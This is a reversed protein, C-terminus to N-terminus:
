YVIIIPLSLESYFTKNTNFLIIQMCKKGYFTKSSKIKSYIQWYLKSTELNIKLGTIEIILNIFLYEKNKKQKM